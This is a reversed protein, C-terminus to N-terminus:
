LFIMPFHSLEHSFGQHIPMLIDFEHIFAPIKWQWTQNSSPSDGRKEALDLLFGELQSASGHPHSVTITAGVPEGNLINIPFISVWHEWESGRKVDQYNTKM